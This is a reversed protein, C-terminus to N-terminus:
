VFDNDGKPENHALSSSNNKRKLTAKTAKALLQM